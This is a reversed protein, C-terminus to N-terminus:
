EFIEKIKFAVSESVVKKLEEISANYIASYSGFHTLLKEETKFGVGPIKLLSVELSSSISKKWQNAKAYRDVEEQINALFNYLDIDDIKIALKNANIIHDTKHKDNKVLGILDVDQWNNKALVKKAENIQAVGGDVILLNPKSGNKTMDIFKQVGQKMYEVDAKRYDVVELNFKRYESKYVNGDIIRIMASVPNQNGFHSNDFVVIDRASKINLLKQLKEVNAVTKTEYKNLKQIENDAKIEVNTKVNEMIKEFQGKQPYQSKIEHSIDFDFDKLEPNFFITKPKQNKAYFANLFANITEEFDFVINLAGTESNLLTGFRYVQIGWVAYENKRAFYFIDVDEYNQLEVLQKDQIKKVTEILRKYSAAEEFRFNYASEQMNSELQKLFNKEKFLLISKIKNFANKWYEYSENEILFGNRYLVQSELYKRLDSSGYGPPLPGYYITNPEKKYKWAIQINIKNTLSIKLYPYKKDDLLLINYRPRFKTISLQEYLLAEKENQFTVFEFSAIEEVLKTTKYSNLAGLFYQRMRKYLNKAKGIYIIEDNSNKWFYVGPLHPIDNLDSITM